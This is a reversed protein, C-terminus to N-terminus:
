LSGATKEDTRQWFQSRGFPGISGRMELTDTDFTRRGSKTGSVHFTIRCGYMRGDAPDIVSGDRWDGAAHRKLGFIFPTGTLTMQNVKGAAPFGPYSEKCRKALNGDTKDSFSLMYGYLMDNEQYIKWGATVNGTKDDISLWFGELPDSAFCIGSIIFLTFLLFFMKKM